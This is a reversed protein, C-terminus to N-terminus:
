LKKHLPRCQRITQLGRVRVAGDGEMKNCAKLRDPESRLGAVALVLNRMCILRDLESRLGAVALVPNRMCNCLKILPMCSCASVAQADTHAQLLSRSSAQM